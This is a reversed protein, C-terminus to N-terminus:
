KRVGGDVVGGPASGKNAEIAQITAAEPSPKRRTIERSKIYSVKHTHHDYSNIPGTVKQYRGKVKARYEQLPGSSCVVTPAKGPEGVLEVEHFHGGVASCRVLPKGDSNYTHYMHCHEMKILDEPAPDVDNTLNKLLYAVEFKYTDTPIKQDKLFVRDHGKKQQM